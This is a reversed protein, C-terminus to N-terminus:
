SVGTGWGSWVITAVLSTDFECVAQLARVVEDPTAKGNGFKRCVKVLNTKTDQAFPRAKIFELLSSTTAEIDEVAQRWVSCVFGVNGSIRVDFLSIVVVSM